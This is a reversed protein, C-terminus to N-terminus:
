NKKVKKLKSSIDQALYELSINRKDINDDYEKFCNLLITNVANVKNQLHKQSRCILPSIVVNNVNQKKCYTGFVSSVKQSTM